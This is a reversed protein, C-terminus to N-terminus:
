ALDTAPQEASRETHYWTNWRGDDSDAGMDCLSLEDIVGINAEDWPDGNQYHSLNQLGIELAVEESIVRVWLGPQQGDSCPGPSALVVYRILDTAGPEDGIVDIWLGPVLDKPDLAGEHHPRHHSENEPFVLDSFTPGM